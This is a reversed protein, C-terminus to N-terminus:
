AAHLEPVLMMLLLADNREWVTAGNAYRVLEAKSAATLHIGMYAELLDIFAANSL